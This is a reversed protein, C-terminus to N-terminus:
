VGVTFVSSAGNYPTIKSTFPDGKYYGFHQIRFKGAPTGASIAWEITILSESEGHRQWKFKTDWDADTLIVTWTNDSNLKEVTLFTAGTLVNNRPNAGYFVVDVTDGVKYSPKADTYAKGFSGTDLVVPTIFSLQDTSLDRPTPGAPVPQDKVLATALQTFLQQYAAFTHPGYITSAGEYRQVTYEEFTTIYGTYTNSLGAVVIITDTIGAAEFVSRVTNRLRRGAMTSFEGPVGLLVLKGISVIQVPVVNPVWPYPHTQGVDLLIPKPHHCAIQEPTPKAIFGALFNWFPNGTHNDGQTFNFAGPGDTTGAAFSYGMAGPCTKGVVQGNQVVTLNTMDVFMHRYKVAGTIAINAADYLSRAKNFQLTGIIKTSDFMDKRPGHAICQEDRGNCTSSNM